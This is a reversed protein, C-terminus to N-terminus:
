GGVVPPVAPSVYGLRRLRIGIIAVAVMIMQPVTSILAKVRPDVPLDVPMVVALLLAAV